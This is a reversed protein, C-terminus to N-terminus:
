EAVLEFDDVILTSGPAGWFKDGDKSASCIIAMRYKTDANYEKKWDLTLNFEKWETQEGGTM